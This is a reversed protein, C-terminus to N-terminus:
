DLRFGDDDLMNVARGRHERAQRSYGTLDLSRKVEGVCRMADEYGQKIWSRIDESFNFMDRDEGMFGETRRMTRGPRIEIVATDPFRDRRWPSADESHTVILHTCGAQEILPDAPTNGQRTRYGGMVGDVYRGGDPGLRRAQLIIPIAASAMITAKREDSPLSQIHRFESPPTDWLDLLKSGMAFLDTLMDESEFISVYLPLGEGRLLHKMGRDLMKELSKVDALALPPLLGAEELDTVIDLAAVVVSLAAQLRPDKAKAKAAALQESMRASAQLVFRGLRWEIPNNGILGTWVEELELAAQKLDGTTESVVVGNFAGASAGAVAHVQVDLEGLGKVIGAQYAASAGGGSLVLGVRAKRPNSVTEKTM